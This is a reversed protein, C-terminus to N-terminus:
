FDEPLIADAQLAAVFREVDELMNRFTMRRLEAVLERVGDDFARDFDEMADDELHQDVATWCEPCELLADWGGPAHPEADVLQLLRSGCCTCAMLAQASNPAAEPLPQNAASDPV